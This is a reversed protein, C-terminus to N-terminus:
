RSLTLKIDQQFNGFHKGFLNMGGRNLADPKVEFRVVIPEDPTLKLKGLSVDSCIEGNIRSRDHEVSWEILM